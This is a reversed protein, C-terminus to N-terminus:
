LKLHKQAPNSIIRGKKDFKSGHCPCDWTQEFPNWSLSCGLHSCRPAKGPILLNKMSCATNQIVPKASARIAFNRPSFISGSEKSHNRIQNSLITAATMSSTMGWKQFGSAIYVPDKQWFYKGIYPVQRLPMCDQASWHGVEIAEPFYAKAAHRLTDYPNKKPIVGTRHKGGGFLLIDKYNRLSFDSNSTGIYMADLAKANKLALVYSCSQYMRLFYMGPFNIFPYHTAIVIHKAKVKHTKGNTMNMVPITTGDIGLAKSKQYIELDKSIGYLFKLPHFQAQNHFVAAGATQFPLSPNSVFEASIGLKNAAAVEKLLADSNQIDYLAADMIEFNCSINEKKIISHYQKIAQENYHAYQRSSKEGAKNRLHSYILGHQSTIKGTTNATVGEGLMNKEFVATKLGSSKLQYATLIGALGGGIVAVDVSMSNELSKLPIPNTIDSWVSNM